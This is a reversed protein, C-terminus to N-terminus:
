NLYKNKLTNSLWNILWKLGSIYDLDLFYISDFSSSSWIWTEIKMIRPFFKTYNKVQIMKSLNTGVQSGM